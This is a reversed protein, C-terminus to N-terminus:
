CAQVHAILQATTMVTAQKPFIRGVLFAHVEPEPDACGDSLVILRYDLDHAERVTSLVAGSTHVGALVLTDIGASLLKAHLETTSFAGVRTKRVVIDGAQPALLTHVATTPADAHMKVGAARIREGMISYPPFASVEADTFGVRVFGVTGGTSRLAAISQGVGTLLSTPDPLFGLISSQFDMALIAMRGPHLPATATM